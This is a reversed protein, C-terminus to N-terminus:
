GYREVSLRVLSAGGPLSSPPADRTGHCSWAEPDVFGRSAGLPAPSPSASGHADTFKQIPGVASTLAALSQSTLSYGPGQLLCSHQDESKAIFKEEEYINKFATVTVTLVGEACVLTHSDLNTPKPCNIHFNKVVNSPSTGYDIASRISSGGGVSGGSLILGAVIGGGILLLLGAGIWPWKGSRRKHERQTDDGSGHAPETTM